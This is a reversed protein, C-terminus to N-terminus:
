IEKWVYNSKMFFTCSSFKIYFNKTKEDFQSLSGILDSSIYKYTGDKFSLKHFYKRTKM